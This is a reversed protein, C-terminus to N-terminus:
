LSFLCQSNLHTADGILVLIDVYFLPGMPGPDNM